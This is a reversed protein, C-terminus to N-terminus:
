AAELLKLLALFEDLPVAAYWGVNNRRFAVVPLETPQAARHVQELAKWINLAEQLKVEICVGPVGTIDGGGQSGSGFNRRAQTWGHAKLLEVVEQEGRAGRRRSARGRRVPKIGPPTV